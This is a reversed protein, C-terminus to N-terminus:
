FTWGIVKIILISRLLHVKLHNVLPQMIWIAMTNGALAMLHQLSLMTQPMILVCFWEVCNVKM